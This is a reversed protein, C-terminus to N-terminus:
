VGFKNILIKVLKDYDNNPNIEEPGNPAKKKQEFDDLYKVIKAIREIHTSSESINKNADSAEQEKDFTIRLRSQGYGTKYGVMLCKGAKQVTYPGNFREGNIHRIYIGNEIYLHYFKTDKILEGAYELKDLTKKGLVSLNNEANKKPIRLAYFNPASNKKITHIKM